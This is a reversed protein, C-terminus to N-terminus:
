FSNNGVHGTFAASFRVGLNEKRIGLKNPCSRVILLIDKLHSNLPKLMRFSNAEIMQKM